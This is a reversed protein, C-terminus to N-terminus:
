GPLRCARAHTAPVRRRCSRLARALWADLTGPGVELARVRAAEEHHVIKGSFTTSSKEWPVDALATILSSYPGRRSSPWGPARRLYQGTRPQLRRVGLGGEGRRREGNAQPNFIGAAAEGLYKGVDARVVLAATRRRPSPAAARLALPRRPPVLRAAAPPPPAVQALIASM